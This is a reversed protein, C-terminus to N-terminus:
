ALINRASDSAFEGCFVTTMRQRMASAARLIQHATCFTVYQAKLRMLNKPLVPRLIVPKEKM